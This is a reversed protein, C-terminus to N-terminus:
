LKLGAVVGSVYRSEYVGTFANKWNTYGSGAALDGTMSVFTVDPNNKVVDGIHFQHSYSNTIVLKAGAAITEECATACTANEEVKKKWVVSVTKGTKEKVAAIAANIGNMHAETYGETEDGVMIAGVTLDAEETKGGCAVLSVSAVVILLVLALALIIKKM